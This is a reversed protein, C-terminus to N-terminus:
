KAFANKENEEPRAPYVVQGSMQHHISRWLRAGAEAASRTSPPRESVGEPGQWLAHHTRLLVQEEMLWEQASSYCKPQQRGLASRSGQAAVRGWEETSPVSDAKNSSDGSERLGQSGLHLRPELDERPVRTGPGSRDM